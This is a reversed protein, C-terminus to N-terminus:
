REGGALRSLYPQFAPEGSADPLLKWGVEYILKGFKRRGMYVVTEILSADDQPDVREIYSLLWDGREAQRVHLSKTDGALEANLLFHKIPEYKLYPRMKHTTQVWGALLANERAFAEVREVVERGDCLRVSDVEFGGIEFSPRANIDPHKLINGITELLNKDSKESM